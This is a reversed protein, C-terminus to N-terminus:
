HMERPLPLQELRANLQELMQEVREPEGLDEFYEIEGDSYTVQLMPATGCSALCEVETLTWNEDASTEGVDVGLQEELHDLLEYGGALACSLTTCVQIHCRGIPQKNIMTYFTATSLVKAPHLELREALYDMVEVSVWGFESQALLLVPLLAAMNNPYRSVIEQFTEETEESFQLSM